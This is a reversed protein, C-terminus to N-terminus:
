GDFSEKEIENLASVVPWWRAQSMGGDTVPDARKLADSLWTSLDPTDTLPKRYSSLM